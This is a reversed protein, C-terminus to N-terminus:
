LGAANQKSTLAGVSSPGGTLIRYASLGLTLTTPVALALFIVMPFLFPQQVLWKDQAKALLWSSTFLWTPAQLLTACGHAGCNILVCVIATVALLVPLAFAAERLVVVRAFGLRHSLDTFLRRWRSPVLDAFWGRWRSPVEGPLLVLLLALLPIFLHPLLAVAVVIDLLFRAGAERYFSETFWFSAQLGTSVVYARTIVYGFAYFVAAPTLVGILLKIIGVVDIDKM